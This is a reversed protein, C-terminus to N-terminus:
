KLTCPLGAPVILDDPFTGEEKFEFKELRYSGDKESLELRFDQDLTVRTYQQNRAQLVLKPEAFGHSVQVEVYGHDYIGQGPAIGGTLPEEGGEMRYAYTVSQNALDVSVHLHEPVVRKTGPTGCEIELSAAHAPNLSPALSMWAMTGILIKKM